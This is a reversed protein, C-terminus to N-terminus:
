RPELDRVPPVPCRDPCQVQGRSYSRYTDEPIDETYEVLSANEAEPLGFHLYKITLGRDLWQREYHTRIDMIEAMDAPIDAGPTYLDPVDAYIPLANLRVMERTYTYLFPSDTKLRVSGGTGTLRRYVELFRTSTLRKRVKKMQPDPFTIWIHDVEGPAFFAEILEISTRVFAVNTLGLDRAATAGAHMRAGKIDVGIFNAEPFRRALAVTYEGKGCGLELIIPGENRFFESHWRGRLPFTSRGAVDAATIPAHVCTAADESADCPTEVSRGEGSDGAVDEAVLRGYPYQFVFPITEMEAFKRLKNKGM